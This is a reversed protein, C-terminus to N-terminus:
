LSDLKPSIRMNNWWTLFDGRIMRSQLGKEDFIKLYQPLCVERYRDFWIQKETDELSTFKEEIGKLIGNKNTTSAPPPPAQQPLSSINKPEDFDAFKEALAKKFYAIKNNIVPLTQLRKRMYDLTRKLLGNDVTAFLQEAEKRKFGYRCLSDILETDIVANDSFELPRQMKLNVRFQLEDVRRSGKVRHEILEVEIDTVLCVETIASKLVDRKFYKYVPAEHLTAGLLYESWWQVSNKATLHSPSTAYRRCIEYLALSANSRLISSYRLSLLTYTQPSLVLGSMEPPFAYGFWIRSGKANLGAQSYLKVSALLRESTWQKEDEVVIKVDQLEQVTEKLYQIDNSGYDADRALEKLPIWFYKQGVATKMPNDVGPTGARQANSILANFVKRSLLSLRGQSVRLGIAENTKKFENPDVVAPMSM